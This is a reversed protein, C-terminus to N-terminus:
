CCAVHGAASSQLGVRPSLCGLSQLYQTTLHPSGAIAHMVAPRILGAALEFRTWIDAPKYWDPVAQELAECLEQKADSSCYASQPDMGLKTVRTRFQDVVASGGITALKSKEIVHFTQFPWQLESLDKLTWKPDRFIAEFRTWPAEVAIGHREALEKRKDYVRFQKKSYAGGIYSTGAKSYGEFSVRAKRDFYFFSERQVGHVDLAVELEKVHAKHFLELYGDDFMMAFQIGLATAADQCLHSPNFQFTAFAGNSKASCGYVVILTALTTLPYSGYTMAAKSSTWWKAGPEYEDVCEHVWRSINKLERGAHSTPDPYLSTDGSPYRIIARLKDLRVQVSIM